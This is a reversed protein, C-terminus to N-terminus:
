RFLRISRKIIIGKEDVSIHAQEVEVRYGCVPCRYYFTVRRTGDSMKESEEVLYMPKGDRKCKMAENM